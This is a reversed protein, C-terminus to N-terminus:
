PLTSTPSSNASSIRRLAKQAQEALTSMSHSGRQLNPLAAIHAALAQWAALAEARRGALDLIEARKAMWPEPRPASIRMVDVRQLAADFKGTAIEMGMAKLILSPVPGLKAIGAVLVSVAEEERGHRVMVEAVEQFHDPEPNVAVALAARYDALGEEGRGVLALARARYILAMPNGPQEKLFRELSELALEPRKAGLNIRGRMLDVPYKGPALEEARALARMAAVWDEHQCNADALQFHLSADNPSRTLDDTLEAVREDIAGHGWAGHVSFVLITGAALICLSRRFKTLSPM